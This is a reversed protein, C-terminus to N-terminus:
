HGCGKAKQAPDPTSCTCDLCGHEACTGCSVAVQARLAKRARSIRAAANNESIGQEAAFDKVAIGDVEVRKLAQAYSPRLSDALRLVCRCAEEQVPGGPDETELESVLRELGRDAAQTRRHHDITANRLTRYFWATVSEEDRLSELKPLAKAFAEQLLDEALERQGLRRELFSLFARHNEVLVRKVSADLPLTVESDKTRDFTAM